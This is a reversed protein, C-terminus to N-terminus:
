QETRKPTMLVSLENEFCFNIPPLSVNSLSLLESSMCKLDFAGDKGCNQVRANYSEIFGYNLLASNFITKTADDTFEKIKVLVNFGPCASLKHAVKNEFFFEHMLQYIDADNSKIVRRNLVHLAVRAIKDMYPRKNTPFFLRRQAVALTDRYINSPKPHKFHDATRESEVDDNEPLNALEYDFNLDFYLFKTYMALLLKKINAQFKSHLEVYACIRDKNENIMADIYNRLYYIEDLKTQCLSHQAEIERRLYAADNNRDVPETGDAATKPDRAKPVEKHIQCFENFANRRFNQHYYHTVGKSKKAHKFRYFRM